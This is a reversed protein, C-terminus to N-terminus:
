DEKVLEPNDHINGTVELKSMDRYFIGDYCYFGLSQHYDSGMGHGACGTNVSYKGFKVIGCPKKDPCNDHRVGNIYMCGFGRMIDDEFIRTSNVDTIGVYQGVSEPIVPNFISYSKNQTVICDYGSVDKAYFGYLWTKNNIDKGRFLIERM